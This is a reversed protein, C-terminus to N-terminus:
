SRHTKVKIIKFFLIFTLVIGMNNDKKARLCFADLPWATHKAERTSLIDPEEGGCEDERSVWLSNSGGKTASIHPRRFARLEVCSWTLMSGAAEEEEDEVAV